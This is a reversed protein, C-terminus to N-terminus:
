DECAEAGGIGVGDSFAQSTLEGSQQGIRRPALSKSRQAM